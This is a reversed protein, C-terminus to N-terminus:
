TERTARAMSRRSRLMERFMRWGGVAAPPHLTGDRFRKAAEGRRIKGSSTRPLTGPALLVVQWPVLGLQGSIRRSVRDSLLADPPPSRGREVLVLLEEGDAGEPVIGVAAYCGIRVGDVDDLCQEIEQPAHNRGRLIVLDKGRGFLYLDGDHLFGTDGTDLWGAAPFAAATVAPRQFYGDMVSPGRVWVRGLLGDDLPAGEDDAIRLGFGALPRGLNVLTLGNEGDRAPRAIGEDTLAARDFARWVFPRDLASFTVALTAEALGYVPTLADPRLGHGAFREVFRQLVTPTVPEAGNLAVRWSSLDVGELEADTVRDACLAYAFNPAPSITARYRSIARLWIAPRAVFAEPPILTLDGQHAVAALLCGVLGMDHYLPLWSVASHTLEPGEPHVTTIADLIATVNALVQRHTLCVPKPEVTTGSSFQIFALDDARRAVLPLPRREVDNVTLCGLEPRAAEISPGLVRRIRADTLVLRAGCATLMAATRAHYEALRGLRVPPYLPVPVLGAALAGFFADFFSPATPLILAVHDGPALGLDVLGGAFASARQHIEAYSISEAREHRDLFRVTRTSAAARALLLSLTEPAPNTM